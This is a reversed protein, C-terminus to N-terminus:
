NSGSIYLNLDEAINHGTKPIVDCFLMHLLVAPVQNDQVPSWRESADTEFEEEDNKPANAYKGTVETVIKRRYTQGCTETRSWTSPNRRFKINPSDRMDTLFGWSRTFIPYEVHLGVYPKNNGCIFHESRTFHYWAILLAFSTCVELSRAVYM